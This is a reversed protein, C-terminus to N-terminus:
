PEQGSARAIITACPPNSGGNEQTHALRTLWKEVARWSPWYYGGQSSTRQVHLHRNGSRRRRKAGASISISRRCFTLGRM